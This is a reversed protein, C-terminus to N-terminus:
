GTRTPSSSACSSSAARALWSRGLSRARSSSQWGATAPARGTQRDSSSAATDEALRDGRGGRLIRPPGTHRGHAAEQEDHPEIHPSASADKPRPEPRRTEGLYLSRAARDTLVRQGSLAVPAGTPRPTTLREHTRLDSRSSPSANAEVHAYRTHRKRETGASAGSGPFVDRTPRTGGSGVSLGGTGPLRLRIARAGGADGDWTASGCCSM